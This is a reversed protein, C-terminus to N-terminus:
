VMLKVIKVMGPILTMVVGLTYFGGSMIGLGWRFFQKKFTEDIM